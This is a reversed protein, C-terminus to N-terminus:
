FNHIKQIGNVILLVFNERNAIVRPKILAWNNLYDHFKCSILRRLSLEQFKQM